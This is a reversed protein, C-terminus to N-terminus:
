YHIGIGEANLAAEYVAESLTPHAHITAILDDLTAELRIALAAEAILETAHPGAIGAGVVQNYKSEAVIKVMGAAEGAIVARSNAFLPFRGVKVSGYKERAAAETLGVAAIEPWAYVCRPVVSYDMERALGMANEAAGVGEAMAAHALMHGGLVDGIAYIGPQSTQMHKDVSIRGKNDCAIGAEAIGLGETFPRRGVAMLVAEATVERTGGGTEFTLTKKKGAGGIGSVKAGTFIEVGDGRLSDALIDTIESDEGPIINPMMEVVTVGTSLARFIQAFEVGVVGGGIVVLSAPIRELELAENSTIVGKGDAGPVPLSAPESGTAIIIRDAEIIAEREGEVRVKNPSIIAGTGRYVKVKNNKMLQEVGARLQAVVERKRKMMAPIDASASEINIGFDAAQRAQRLIGTAQVLCKTPVCGRNLCTGGLLDKEILSVQGGLQAARIAAVYGGVGGGIIAIRRSNESM